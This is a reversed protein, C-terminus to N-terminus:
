DVYETLYDFYDKYQVSKSFTIKNKVVSTIYDVYGEEVEVGEAPTFKRTEVNYQGLNTKWSRDPWFILPETESFVDRGVMLRSDYEVDFLNSLTPLIDLSFVPDDVVINQGELSGSWIILANHEQIFKDTVKQGYLESLYDKDNGWTSSKELGYPYHDTALVIVTDDAIGAEELQRVLSEMAYELELNAALYCKVTESCDLHEVAAFNKKSMTNGGKSYRCHGSVTMYYVSFPQHDIYLPVTFDMMELDSEPWVKKVGEEMGNGLGMYTDYGLAKHTKHRDYYSYTHNHFAMSYYDRKQLQKGILLFLDQQTGEKISNIGSGAVMGTINSFEGTSTSGGWSPQYYDTFHIGQTALRYLTPTLEEDIVEAAFAEATIFILNKGEFLGTYENEMSPTQAAVYAHLSAIADNKESEALAAFDIDLVQEEYVIPAETPVTTEEPIEPAATTEIPATTQPPMTPVPDFDLNEDINDPNRFGDTILAIHLGYARVSTDFDGGKLGEDEKTIDFVAVIGLLYLLVGAAGLVARLEWPSKRNKGWVAYAVVPALLVLIRWFEKLLLELILGLYDDAVGGAGAIVTAPAMFVQYADKLFYELLTFVALFAALGVATWKGAKAPLLSVVCALVAGLGLAFVSVAALRVSVPDNAWLHLTVECFVAVLWIFAWAPLIPKKKKKVVHKRM